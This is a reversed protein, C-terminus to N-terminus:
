SPEARGLPSFGRYFRQLAGPLMTTRMVFMGVSGGIATVPRRIHLVEVHHVVSEHCAWTTPSRVPRPTGLTLAKVIAPRALTVWLLTCGPERGCLLFEGNM